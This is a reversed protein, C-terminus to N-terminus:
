RNARLHVYHAVALGGILFSVVVVISCIKRINNARERRRWSQEPKKGSLYRAWSEFFVGDSLWGLVGGVLCIQLFFLAILVSDREASSLPPQVKTSAAIFLGGIAATALTSLHKFLEITSARARDYLIQVPVDDHHLNKGESEASSHVSTEM